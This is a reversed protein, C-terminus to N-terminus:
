QTTRQAAAHRRLASSVLAATSGLAMQATNRDFLEGLSTETPHHALNCFDTLAQRMVLERQVLTLDQKATKSAQVAATLHNKQDLSKTLAELAMRCAAVVDCCHGLTFHERAREMHESVATSDPISEILPVEFLMFQGFGAEKLTKIWDSVSVACHVEEFGIVLAAETRIEPRLAITLRFGQGDRIREITEMALPSLQIEFLISSAFAHRFVQFPQPTEPFALGLQIGEPGSLSVRSPGFLVVPPVANEWNQVAFKLALRLLYGGAVRAGHIGAFEAEAIVRNNLNIGM